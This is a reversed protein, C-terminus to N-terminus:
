TSSVREGSRPSEIQSTTTSANGSLYSRQSASRSSSGLRRRTSPECWATARSPSSGRRTWEVTSDYIRVHEFADVARRLNSISADYIARVERESAGHGGAIARRVVRQFNIEVSETAM